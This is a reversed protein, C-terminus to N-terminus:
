IFYFVAAGDATVSGSRNMRSNYLPRFKCTYKDSVDALSTLGFCDSKPYGVTYFSVYIINNEDQSGDGTDRFRYDVRLWPDDRSGCGISGDLSGGVSDAPSSERKRNFSEAIAEYVRFSKRPRLKRFSLFRVCTAQARSRCRSSGTM